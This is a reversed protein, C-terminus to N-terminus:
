AFLFMELIAPRTRILLKNCWTSYWRWSARCHPSPDHWQLQSQEPQSRATGPLASNDLFRVAGGGISWRSSCCLSSNHRPRFVQKQGGRTTGLYRVVALHGAAAAVLLPTMAKDMDAGERILNQVKSLDGQMAALILPSQVLQRQATMNSCDVKADLRNTSM